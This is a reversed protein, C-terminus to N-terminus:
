GNHDGKTTKDAEGTPAARITDSVHPETLLLCGGMIAPAPVYYCLLLGNEIVAVIRCHIQLSTKPM